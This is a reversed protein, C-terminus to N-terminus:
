RSSKKKQSKKGLAHLKKLFDNEERLYALEEKATKFKRGKPRGTSGVGRREKGLVDSGESELITRWRSISKRAYGPGFLKSKIGANEFIDEASKGLGFQKIAEKKFKATFSLSSSTVKRIHKNSELLKREQTSFRNM